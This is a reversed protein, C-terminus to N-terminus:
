EPDLIGYCHRNVKSLYSLDILTFFQLVDYGNRSLVKELNSLSFESEVTASGRLIEIKEESVQADEQVVEQNSVKKLLHCSDQAVMKMTAYSIESECNTIAAHDSFAVYNLHDEPEETMEDTCDAIGFAEFAVIPDVIKDQASTM